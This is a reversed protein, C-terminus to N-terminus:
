FRKTRPTAEPDSGMLPHPTRAGRPDVVLLQEELAKLEGDLRSRELRLRKIQEKIGSTKELAPEHFPTRTLKGDRFRVLYCAGTPDTEITGIGERFRYVSQAREDVYRVPRTRQGRRALGARWAARQIDNMQDYDSGM